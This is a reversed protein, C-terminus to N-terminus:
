PDLGEEGQLEEQLEIQPDVTMMITDTVDRCEMDRQNPQTLQNIM